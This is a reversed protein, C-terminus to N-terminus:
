PLAYTREGTYEAELAVTEALVHCDKCANFWRRIGDLDIHYAEITLTPSYDPGIMQDVEVRARSISVSEPINSMVMFIDTPFEGRAKYTHAPDRAEWGGDHRFATTDSATTNITNKSNNTM